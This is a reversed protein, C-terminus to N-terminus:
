CVDDSAGRPPSGIERPDVSGLRRSPQAWVRPLCLWLGAHRYLCLPVHASVHVDEATLLRTTM